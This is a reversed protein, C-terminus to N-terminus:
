IQGDSRWPSIHRLTLLTRITAAAGVAEALATATVEWSKLSSSMDVDITDKEGSVSWFIGNAKERRCLIVPVILPWHFTKSIANNGYRHCKGWAESICIKSM